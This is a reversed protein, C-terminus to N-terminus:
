HGTIGLNNVDTGTCFFASLIMPTETSIQFFGAVGFSVKFYVFRIFVKGRVTVAVWAGNRLNTNRASYGEQYGRILLLASANSRHLRPEDLPAHERGLWLL